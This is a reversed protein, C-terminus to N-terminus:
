GGAGLLFAELARVSAQSEFLARPAAERIRASLAARRGKDLGLGLAIAVYHEVDRAIADDIGMLRYFGHTHRARM